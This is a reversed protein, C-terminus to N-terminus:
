GGIIHLADSVGQRDAGARVLVVAWFRLAAPRTGGFPAKEALHSLSVMYRGYDGRTTALRAPTALAIVDPDTAFDAVLAEVSAPLEIEFINM